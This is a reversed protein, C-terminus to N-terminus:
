RLLASLPRDDEMAEPGRLIATLQQDDELGGPERTRIGPEGPARGSPVRVARGPTSAPPGVPLPAISAASLHHAAASAGDRAPSSAAALAAPPTLPLGHAPPAAHFLHRLFGLPPHAPPLLGPPPRVLAPSDPPPHPSSASRHAGEIVARACGAAVAISLRQRCRSMWSRASWSSSCADLSDLGREKAVKGMRALLDRVGPGFAGTTEFGLGLFEGGQALVAADYKRRKAEEARLAAVMPVDASGGDLNSSCLPSSVEVDAVLRLGRAAPSGAGRADRALGGLSPFMLDPRSGDGAQFLGRVEKSPFLGLEKASQFLVDRADNHAFSSLSDLPCTSFHHALQLGSVGSGSAQRCSCGVVPPVVSPTLGLRLELMVVFVPPPLIDGFAGPRSGTASMWASSGLSAGSRVVARLSPTAQRLVRSRDGLRVARALERQRGLAPDLLSFEDPRFVVCREGGLFRLDAVSPARRTVSEVAERLAVPTPLQPRALHPLRVRPPAPGAGDGGSLAGGPGPLQSQLYTLLPVRGRSTAFGFPANSSRDWSAVMRALASLASVYAAPAVSLADGADAGGHGAPLAAIDAHSDCIDSCPRRLIAALTRRGLLDFARAAPAVVAPQLMRLLHPFRAKVSWRWCVFELQPDALRPLQAAVHAANRVVQRAGGLEIGPDGIAAGLVRKLAGLWHDQASHATEGASVLAPGDDALWADLEPFPDSDALAPVAAVPAGHHGPRLGRLIRDNRGVSVDAESIAGVEAAAVAAGGVGVAGAAGAGARAVAGAHTGASAAAGATGTARTAGGADGAEVHAAADSGAGGGHNVWLASKARNVFYGVPEGLVVLRDFAEGATDRHGVIYQDDGYGVVTHQPFERQLQAIVRALPLCALIMAPVDGQQLGCSSILLQISGDSLKVVLHSEPGLSMECSSYWLPFHASVERLIAARDVENFYNSADSCIAARPDGSADLVECAIRVVHHCFEVGGPVCCAFQHPLFHAAIAQADMLLACRWAFRRLVCGAGIPRASEPRGDGNKDIAFLSASCIWPWLEEPFDANMYCEVLFALDEQLYCAALAEYSLGDPGVGVLRKLGSLAVRIAPVETSSGDRRTSVVNGLVWRPRAARVEAAEVPVPNRRTPHKSQLVQRVAPDDVSLLPQQVVGKVGKSINGSRLCQVARKAAAAQTENPSCRSRPCPPRSSGQSAHYLEMWKGQQFADVRRRLIQATSDGAGPSSKPLPFLLLQPWLFLLKTGRARSVADPRKLLWLPLDHLARHFAPRAVKPIHRLLTARAVFADMAALGDLFSFASPENELFDLRAGDSM